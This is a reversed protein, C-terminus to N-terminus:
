IRMMYVNDEQIYLSQPHTEIQRIRNETTTKRGFFLPPYTALCCSSTNMEFTTAVGM